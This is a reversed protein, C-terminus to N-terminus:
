GSFAATLDATHLYVPRRTEDALEVANDIAAEIAGRKDYAAGAGFWAEDILPDREKERRYWTWFAAEVYKFVPHLEHRLRHDSDPYVVCLLHTQRTAPYYAMKQGAMIARGTTACIGPFKATIVRYDLLPPMGSHAPAPTISVM